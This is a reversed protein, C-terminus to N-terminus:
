LLRKNKKSNPKQKQGTIELLEGDVGKEVCLCLGRAFSEMSRSRKLIFFVRFKRAVKV